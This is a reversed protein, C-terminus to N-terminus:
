FMTTHYTIVIDFGSFLREDSDGLTLNVNDDMITIVYSNRQYLDQIPSSVLQLSINNTVTEKNRIKYFLTRTLVLDTFYVPFYQSM